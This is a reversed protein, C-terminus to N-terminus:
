LLGGAAGARRALFARAEGNVYDDPRRALEAAAADDFAADPVAGPMACSLVPLAPLLRLM